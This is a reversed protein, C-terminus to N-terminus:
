SFNSNLFIILYYYNLSCKFKTFSNKVMRRIPTQRLSDIRTSQDDNVNLVSSEIMTASEVEAMEQCSESM